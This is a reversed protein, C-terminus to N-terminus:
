VHPPAKRAPPKAPAMPPHMLDRDVNMALEALTVQRLRARLMAQAEALADDIARNVAQEILCRPHEVRHGITFPAPIALADYVDGLTVEALPRALSWGGGHGKQSRVIGADRLGGMTRRVVVPNMSTMPGLMDSTVVRDLEGM